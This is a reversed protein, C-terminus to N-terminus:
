GNVIMGKKQQYVYSDTQEDYYMSYVKSLDFGQHRLRNRVQKFPDVMASLETRSIHLQVMKEIM